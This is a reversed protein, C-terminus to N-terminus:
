KYDGQPLIGCYINCFPVWHAFSDNETCRIFIAYPKWIHPACMWIKLWKLPKHRAFLRGFWYTLSHALARACAQVSESAQTEATNCTKRTRTRTRTCTDKGLEIGMGLAREIGTCVKVLWCMVQAMFAEASVNIGSTLVLYKTQHSKEMCIQLHTRDYVYFIRWGNQIITWCGVTTRHVSLLFFFCSFFKYWESEIWFFGNVCSAKQKRSFFNYM